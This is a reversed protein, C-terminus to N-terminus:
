RLLALQEADTKAVKKATTDTSTLTAGRESKPTLGLERRFLALLTAAREKTRALEVRLSVLLVVARYVSAPIATRHAEVWVVAEQLDSEALSTSKPQAAAVAVM